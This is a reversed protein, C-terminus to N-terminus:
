QPKKRMEFSATTDDEKNERVAHISKGDPAVTLTMVSIVKGDRKGTQEVTNSNILRLSVMTHGPDDEVPYFKGDFKADFKEGLPTEASFGEATCKYKIISGNKSRQVKYASWTGSIAHAGVPGKELRRSLTEIIVAEAETSDKVLQSLTSGDASVTDTETFMTKGAKKSIIEVTHGDVIRVSIADRYGNSPVKQDNGDAKIELNESWDPGRFQGKALLYSAPKQPPQKTGTEILWTGDFPSQALSAVPSLLLLALTIKM